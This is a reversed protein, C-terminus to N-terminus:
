INPKTIVELIWDKDYLELLLKFLQIMRGERYIQRRKSIEPNPNFATTDIIDFRRLIMQEVKQTVLSFFKFQELYQKFTEVFSCANFWGVKSMLEILIEQTGGEIEFWEKLVAQVEPQAYFLDHNNTAFM